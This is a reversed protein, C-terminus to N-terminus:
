REGESRAGLSRRGAEALRQLRDALSPREPTMPAVGPVEAYPGMTRYRAYRRELLEDIPVAEIAALREVIVARLRRATEGPDTHAGEGPEPVVADLVGLELQDAATMRMALAAAPAAENTRWLITACGEPSIVSYVANELGIVLDGVALALAGGSGGEGTIVAVIPTRLRTMRGVSRAIAEAIGREESDPGPHAGPVDVFTLLPMRFREAMDMARMAKRYGEPHPMGFNRRINEETDAGKQHGVVVFRRGGIRALGSVIAADDGFLRDGHLEFWEEAMEDLLELTRPRRLHRALQVRAWVEAQPDPPTSPRGTPEGAERGGRGLLREVM